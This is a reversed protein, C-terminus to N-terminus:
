MSNWCMEDAYQLLDLLSSLLSASDIETAQPIEDSGRAGLIGHGLHVLASVCNLVPM